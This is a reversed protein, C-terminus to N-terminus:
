PSANEAIQTFSAPHFFVSVVDIEADVVNQRVLRQAM